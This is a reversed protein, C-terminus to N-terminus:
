WAKIESRLLTYTSPYFGITAKSLTSLEDESPSENGSTKFIWRLYELVGDPDPDLVPIILDGARGPRRLDPSLLHIRATLLLWFIRGRYRTDAMMNQIKGTLRRETSHSDPGLDGFQTDAEDVFIMVRYLAELVRKLREFIVDTQGFWQSRINKLVLVPIGLSAAVAEFIFTKGVGIPGSVAAGSLSSDGGARIRPILSKKLFDKLKAAGIVDKELDHAPRKFEVVDEGLQAKIFNEVGCVVDSIEIRQENGIAEKMLQRLEYLNLGASIEALENEGAWLKLKRDEAQNFFSIYHKRMELDPLPIEILKVFPLRSIKQNVVSASESLLIVADPGEIFSQDSFWDLGINIRHRDGPPLDPINGEPILVEASEIFIILDKELFPKGTKPDKTRSCLCFQRLIELSATPYRDLSYLNEEFEDELTKLDADSQQSLKWFVWSKKLLKRSEPNPFGIFGNLQNVLIIKGPAASWKEKLFDILPVYGRSDDLYYLDNINGSILLSNSARSNVSRALERLFAYTPAESM